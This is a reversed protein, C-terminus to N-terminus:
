MEIGIRYLFPIDTARMWFSVQQFMKGCGPSVIKLAWEMSWWFIISESIVQMTKYKMNQFLTHSRLSWTAHWQPGMEYTIWAKWLNKVGKQSPPKSKDRWKSAAVCSRPVSLLLCVASFYSSAFNHEHFALSVSLPTQNKSGYYIKLLLIGEHAWM